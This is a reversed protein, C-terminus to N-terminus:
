DKSLEILKQFRHNLGSRSIGCLKSLESLSMEPNQIRLQAVTKLEDSLMSLKGSKKLKKIATTQKIVAEITKDINATECNKIRNVKNRMEREMACDIVELSKKQAGMLTIIDSVSESGKAYILHYNNRKSTHVNFGLSSFISGLSIAVTEKTTKLEIHFDKKPDTATGSVLFAGRVFASFCNDCQFADTIYEQSIVDLYIQGVNIIDLSLSYRGGSIVLTPTINYVSKILDKAKKAIDERDSSFFIDSNTFTKSFLFLGYLESFACCSQAKVKLLETKIDSSFSM